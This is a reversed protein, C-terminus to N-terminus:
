LSLTETSVHPNLRHLVCNSQDLGLSSQESDTSGTGCGHNSHRATTKLDYLAQTSLGRSEELDLERFSLFAIM